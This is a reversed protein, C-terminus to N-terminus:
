AGTLRVRAAVMVVLEVDLAELRDHIVPVKKPRLGRVELGPYAGDRKGGPAARREFHVHKATSTSSSSRCYHAEAPPPSIRRRGSIDACAPASVPAPTNADCPTPRAVKSGSCWNPSQLHPRTPWSCTSTTPKATSSSWSSMSNPAYRACPTSAFPSRRM